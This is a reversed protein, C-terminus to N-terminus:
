WEGSNIADNLDKGWAAPVAIVEVPKGFSKLRAIARNFLATAQPKGWDNDKFVIWSSIAAHDPVTLLGSLSGAAWFRLAPEAIAGTLGDEIGETVGAPGRIGASVAQEPSLGSPGNTLRIVLGSTEPFMMKAKEVPAKGRGDAALFTYHNAGPKGQHDVMASIMAPFTPRAEERWYECAPHFRISRGLAPVLDLSVGRSALYAEVPTGQLQEQCSYFFKRSRDRAKERRRDDRAQAAARRSKAEAAAKERMKPDMQKLGYRDEIWALATMRSDDSVIGTLAFAVLDIADGKEGSVFDKWGGRRDGRVWVVMQSERSKARYPNRVGWTGGKLHRRSAHLLEEVISELDSVVRDKAVSFRSM